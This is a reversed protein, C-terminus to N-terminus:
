EEREKKHHLKYFEKIMKNSVALEDIVDKGHIIGLKDYQLQQALQLVASIQGASLDKLLNYIKVSFITPEKYKKM